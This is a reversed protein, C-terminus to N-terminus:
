RGGRESAPESESDSLSSGAAWCCCWCACSVETWDTWSRRAWSASMLSTSMSVEFSSARVGSTMAFWAVMLMPSAILRKPRPQEFYPRARVRRPRRVRSSLRVTRVAKVCGEAAPLGQERGGGLAQLQRDSCGCAASARGRRNAPRPARIALHLRMRGPIRPRQSPLPAVHRRERMSRRLPECWRRLEMAEAGVDGVRRERPGKLGDDRVTQRSFQGKGM